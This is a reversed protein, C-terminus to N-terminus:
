ESPNQPVFKGDPGNAVGANQWNTKKDCWRLNDISNCLKDRNIHDVEPLNHPNDLLTEAVLRHVYVKIQKVFRGSEDRLSINVSPYLRKNGAAGGRLFQKVEVKETLFKEGRNKQSDRFVKGKESVYYGPFKTPFYKEM